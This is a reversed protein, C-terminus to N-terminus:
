EALVRWLDITTKQIQVLKIDDDPFDECAKGYAKFATIATDTMNLRHWQGADKLWRYIDWRTESILKM